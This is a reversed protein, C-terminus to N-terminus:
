DWEFIELEGCPTRIVFMCRVVLEERLGVVCAVISFTSRNVLQASRQLIVKFGVWFSQHTPPRPQLQTVVSFTPVVLEIGPPGLPLFRCSWM